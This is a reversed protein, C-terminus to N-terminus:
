AQERQSPVFWNSWRGLRDDEGELYFCIVTQGCNSCTASFEGTVHDQTMTRESPTHIYAVFGAPTIVACPTLSIPDTM